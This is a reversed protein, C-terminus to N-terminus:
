VTATGPTGQGSADDKDKQAPTTATRQRAPDDTPAGALPEKPKPAEALHIVAPPQPPLPAGGVSPMAPPGERRKPPRSALQVYLLGFCLAFAVGSFGVWALRLGRRPQTM